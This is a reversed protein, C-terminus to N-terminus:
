IQCYGGLSETTVFFVAERAMAEVVFVGAEGKERKFLVITMKYEKRNVNFVIKL